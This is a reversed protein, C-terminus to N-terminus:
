DFRIGNAISGNPLSDIYIEFDGKASIKGIAGNHDPNVFFLNGDEDVAPGELGQTFDGVFM